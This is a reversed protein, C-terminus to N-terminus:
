VQRLTEDHLQFIRVFQKLGESERVLHKIEIAAEAFKEAAFQKSELTLNAVSGDSICRM